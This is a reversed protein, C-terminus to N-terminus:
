PMIKYTQTKDQLTCSQQIIVKMFSKVPLNKLVKITVNELPDTMELKQSTM